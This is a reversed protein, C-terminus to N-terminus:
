PRPCRRVTSDEVFRVEGATRVVRVAHAPSRMMLDSQNCVEVRTERVYIEMDAGSVVASDIRISHGAGTSGASVVVVISSDFGVTPPGLPRGQTETLRRWMNAWAASDRVM